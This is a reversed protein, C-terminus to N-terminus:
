RTSFCKRIEETALYSDPDDCDFVDWALLWILHQLNDKDNALDEETWNGYERVKERILEKSYRSMWCRLCPKECVFEVAEDNYGSSCISNIEEGTLPVEILGCTTQAIYVKNDELTM